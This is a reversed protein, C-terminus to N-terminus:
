ELAGFTGTEIDYDLLGYSKAMVKEIMSGISKEAGPLFAIADAKSLLHIDIELYEAWRMKSSVFTLAFPNIAQHGRKKINAVADGFADYANPNDTIPGSIYIRM